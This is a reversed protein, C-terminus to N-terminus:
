AVVKLTVLYTGQTGVPRNSTNDAVWQFDDVVVQWTRGRREYTVVERSVYLDHLLGWEGDVDVDHTGVGDPATVVDALMIPVSILETRDPDPDAFLSIRHLGPNVTGLGILHVSAEFSRGVTPPTLAADFVVAGEVDSTGLSVPTGQDHALLIEISDFQAVEAIPDHFLRARTVTKPDSLGYTIQGTSLTGDAVLVTSERIVGVGSVTFWRKHGFTVVSLVSGQTPAVANGAMLDSAYAPTLDETFTKLDLRGLGTSVSDYNTLGYWVFRDQGEACLVPSAAPILAGLTLNGDADPAAFRVGKDTGVILFNLYGTLSRAIEGDPLPVAHTPIELDTGDPQIATKYIASKDSAFGCMYIHSPGEGFDTWRWASNPHAFLDAPAAAPVASTINVVSSNNGAGMLRGKVYRLVTFDGTTVLQTFATGTAAYVGNTGSSYAAYVHTGDSCMSSIAAAPLGTPANWASGLTDSYNMQTGNSVYIRTGAVALYLNTDTRPLVIQTDPLLSLGWKTWPDVGKSTRFRYPDSDARDLWDQGSGHHWSEQARRWLGAPNLSEEGPRGSTDSQARLMPVSQHRDQQSAPDLAYGRGNLVCDWQLGLDTV